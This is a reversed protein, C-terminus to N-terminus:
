AFVRDLPDSALTLLLGEQQRQLESLREEKAIGVHEVLFRDQQEVVDEVFKITLTNLSYYVEDVTRVESLNEDGVGVTLVECVDQLVRWVLWMNEM